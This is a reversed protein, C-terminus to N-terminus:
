LELNDIAPLDELSDIGFLELFRPTTVYESQAGGQLEILRRRVLQRLLAGPDAGALREIQARSIPQRYAVVSLVNIAQPSLKVGKDPRARSQLEARHRPDLVIQYGGQSREISYPRHQRRYRESLIRICREFDRVAVAPFSRRFYDATLPENGIFLIAEIVQLLVRQSPIPPAPKRPPPPPAEVVAEEVSIEPVEVEHVIDEAPNSPDM